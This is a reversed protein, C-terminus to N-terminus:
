ECRSIKSELIKNRLFNSIDTTSLLKLKIIKKGKIEAIHLKTALRQKGERRCAYSLHKHNADCYELYIIKASRM